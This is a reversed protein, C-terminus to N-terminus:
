HDHSMEVWSSLEHLNRRCSYRVPWHCLGYSSFEQNPLRLRGSMDHMLDSQRALLHHWHMSYSISNRYPVLIRCPLSHVGKGGRPRLHGCRLGGSSHLHKPMLLWCPVSLM